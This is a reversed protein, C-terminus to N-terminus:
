KQSSGQLKRTRTLGHLGCVGLVAPLATEVGAATMFEDMLSLGGTEEMDLSALSFFGHKGFAM